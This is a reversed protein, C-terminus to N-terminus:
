RKSEAWEPVANVFAAIGELPTEPIVGHGLNVIHGTGGTQDLMRFVRERITEPPAFLIGPDLNGQVARDEGLRRRVEELEVRWDVGIVDAGTMAAPELLNGIGNVYYIVPVGLPRLRDVIARLHPLVFRRFDPPSLEGAWTDFLQVADASAEVQMELYDATTDAIREMLAAFPSPHTHMFEKVHHFHRSGGGEIMYCALTYPAGAFGLIALEDGGERRTQRIADGVYGLVKEVDPRTLRTTDSASRVPPSVLLRPTFQVELGLAAPVVLIDSFIVAADM